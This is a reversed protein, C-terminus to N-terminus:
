VNINELHLHLFPRALLNRVEIFDFDLFPEVGQIVDDAISTM